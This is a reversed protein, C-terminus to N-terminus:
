LVCHLPLALKLTTSSLNVCWSQYVLDAVIKHRTKRLTYMSCIYIYINYIYIYINYYINNNYIYINCINCIYIYIHVHNESVEGNSHGCWSM